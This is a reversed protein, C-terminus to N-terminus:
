CAAHTAVAFTDLVGCTHTVCKRLDRVETLTRIFGGSMVLQIACGTKGPARQLLVTPVPTVFFFFFFFVQHIGSKAGVEDAVKRSPTQIM